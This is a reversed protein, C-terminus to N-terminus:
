CQKVQELWYTNADIKYGIGEVYHQDELISLVSVGSVINDPATSMPYTLSAVFTDNSWTERAQQTEVVDVYQEDLRKYVRVFIADLKKSREEEYNALVADMGEALEVFRNTSFSVGQNKLNRMEQTLCKVIDVTGMHRFPNMVNFMEDRKTTLIRATKEQIKDHYVFAIEKASYPQIYKKVSLVAKTPSVSLMM